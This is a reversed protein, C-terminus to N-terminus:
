GRLANFKKSLYKSFTKESITDPQKKMNPKNAKLWVKMLPIHSRFSQATDIKGQNVITEFCEILTPGLTPRGLSPKNKKPPLQPKTPNPKLLHSATALKIDAFMLSQYKLSNVKWDVNGFWAEKPLKVVPSSLKRPTEYGIGVLKESQLLLLLNARMKRQLELRPGYIEGAKRASQIIAGIVTIRTETLRAFENSAAETASQNQLEQWRLKDGSTAIKLPADNLWVSREWFNKLNPKPLNVM